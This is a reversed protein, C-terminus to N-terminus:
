AICNKKEILSAADSDAIIEVNKHLKLISAPIFTSVGSEVMHKIIPAKSKGSALLIIKEARMIDGIGMTIARQPVKSIDDFFRSNAKRTDETLDTVHTRLTLDKSPENFGIHGNVGIGLIQIDIPGLKELFKNYRECEAKADKATGDPIFVNEEKINIHNFLNNKMFYIYSQENEKDLGIYEDLNFTTVKSFDVKGAKYYEILKKYMGLPTSGTALGLVSERKINIQNVIYEAALNSMEDYNSVVSIRM